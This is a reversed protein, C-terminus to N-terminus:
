SLSRQLQYSLPSRGCPPSRYIKEFIEPVTTLNLRRLKAGYGFGLVCLGLVMGLPYFLVGWGQSYAEESAGMLAGGGIQTALLTMVLSFLGLKRGMLFYDENTKQGSSARRGLWISAIGLILLLSFFLKINM